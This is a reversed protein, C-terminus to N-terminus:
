LILTLHTEGLSNVGAPIMTQECGGKQYFFVVNSERSRCPEDWARM